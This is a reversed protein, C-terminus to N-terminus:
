SGPRSTPSVAPLTEFGIREGVLLVPAGNSLTAPQRFTFRGDGEQRFFGIFADAGVQDVELTSTQGSQLEQLFESNGFCTAVSILPLEAKWARVVGEVETGDEAAYLGMLRVCEAPEKGPSTGNLSDVSLGLAAPAVFAGTPMPAAMAENIDISGPLGLPATAGEGTRLFFTSIIEGAKEIDVRYTGAFPIPTKRLRAVEAIHFASELIARAPYRNVKEGGDRRWDVLGSVAGYPREAVDVATPLLQYLDFLENASLAPQAGQMPHEWPSNPFGEWVAEYVDLTPQNNIWREQPRLRGRFFGVEGVPSWLWSGTWPIPACNEDFGWPVLLVSTGSSVGETNRGIRSVEVLQGFMGNGVPITDERAIAVFHQVGETRIGDFPEACVSISPSPRNAIYRVPNGEGLTVLMAPLVVLSLLRASVM